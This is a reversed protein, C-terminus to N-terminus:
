NCFNFATCICFQITEIDSLHLQFLHGYNTEDHGQGKVKSRKVEFDLWNMKRLSCTTFKTIIGM